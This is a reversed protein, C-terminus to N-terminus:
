LLKQGLSYHLFIDSINKKKKKALQDIEENEPICTFKIEFNIESLFNILTHINKITYNNSIYNLLRFPLLYHTLQFKLKKQKM